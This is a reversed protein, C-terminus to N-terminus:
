THARSSNQQSNRVIIDVGVHVHVHVHLIGEQTGQIYEMYQVYVHVHICHVHMYVYM